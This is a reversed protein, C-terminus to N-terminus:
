EVGPYRALFARLLHPAIRMSTHPPCGFRLFGRRVDKAERAAAIALDHENLIAKAHRLLVEGAGTLALLKGARVYIKEGIEDELQRIQAFVAPASLHLKDGARAFNSTESIAVFARLHSLEM